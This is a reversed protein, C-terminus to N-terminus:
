KIKHETFLVHKNARPDFKMMSLRYAATRPRQKVYTFGTGATSILRVLINRSKPKKAVLFLQFLQQDLIFVGALNMFDGSLWFMLLPTSLGDTSKRKWNVYVQPLLALMWLAVSMAGLIASLVEWYSCVCQDFFHM